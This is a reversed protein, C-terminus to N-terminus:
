EVKCIKIEDYDVIVKYLGKMNQDLEPDRTDIRLVQNNISLLKFKTAVIIVNKPTVIRLIRPSFQLNGRGFLFGQQGILTTIIKVQKGDIHNIIQEENLDRAIIEGNILLDIGLITKEQELLDTIARITTGPGLLYYVDDELIELIRKAIREQNNLDSDPTRMKSRQSLDPNYPILLEGYLKSVLHGKRYEMEDIDLVESEKLPIEDWLFQMVITAADRPNVSFVSSYIKVGTPIGLCPLNKGIAKFIDRATGDGGFFLLIKMNDLKRMKLAAKMTHQASTESLEKISNFIPDEIMEYTFQMEKLLSAGMYGPCTIFKIKHKIARLEALFERARNIANPQAGLSIAKQLIERGDTGKLGVSGGMGSIPNIILGLLFRNSDHM